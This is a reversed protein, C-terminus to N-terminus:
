RWLCICSTSRTFKRRLILITKEGDTFVQKPALKHNKDYKFGFNIENKNSLIFKKMKLKERVKKIHAMNNEYPYKWQIYPNFNNDTSELVIFYSRKDTIM